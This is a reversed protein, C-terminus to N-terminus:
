LAALAGRRAHEEKGKLYAQALKAAEGLEAALERVTTQCDGQLFLDSQPFAPHLDFKFRGAKEMNILLRPVNPVMDAIAAFPFVVLSTGVVVLMDAEQIDTELLKHFRSPLQEGFFVVDPKVIDGCADCRPVKAKEVCQRVEEINAEKRCEASICHATAFTGHAEVLLEPNVGALREMGDINQTYCRLLQGRDALIKLFHHVHTPAFAGPWLKMENCALYFVEPKERLYDLTFLDAPEPLNYKELNDYLGIKPTRFDPIGAAVSIGAGCMVLVKKRTMLEAAAGSVDLLGYPFVTRPAALVYAGPPMALPLEFTPGSASQEVPAPEAVEILKGGEEILTADEQYTRHPKFGVLEVALNIRPVVKDESDVIRRIATVWKCDPWQEACHRVLELMTVRSGVQPALDSLKIRFCNQVNATAEMGHEAVRTLTVDRLAMASSIFLHVVAPFSPTSDTM